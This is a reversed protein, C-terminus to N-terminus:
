VILGQLEAYRRVFIREVPDPLGVLHRVTLPKEGSFLKSLYAADTLGMAAAVAEKKEGSEEIARRLAQRVLVLDKDQGDDDFASSNGRAVTTSAVVNTGAM